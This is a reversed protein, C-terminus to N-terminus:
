TAGGPYSDTGTGADNQCDSNALTADRKSWTHVQACSPCNLHAVIEPIQALAEQAMEIGTFVEEGTVPCTIM